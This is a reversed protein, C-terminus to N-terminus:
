PQPIRWAAAAVANALGLAHKDISLYHRKTTEISKHGAQIRAAEASIGGLMSLGTRRIAHLTLEPDAEIGALGRLQRFCACLYNPSHPWPFIKPSTAISRM